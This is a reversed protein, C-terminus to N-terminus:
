ESRSVGAPTSPPHPPPTKAKRERRDHVCGKVLLLDLLRSILLTPLNSHIFPQGRPPPYLSAEKAQSLTDPSLDCPFMTPAVAWTKPLPAPKGKGRSAEGELAALQNVVEPLLM